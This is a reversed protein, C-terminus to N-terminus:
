TDRDVWRPHKRVTGGPAPHPHEDPGHEPALPAGADRSPTRPGFVGSRGSPKRRRSRGLIWQNNYTTGM